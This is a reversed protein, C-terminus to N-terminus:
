QPFAPDRCSRRGAAPRRAHGCAPDVALPRRGRPSRQAGPHQAGRVRRALGSATVAPTGGGVPIPNPVPVSAPSPAPVVAGSASTCGLGAAASTAAAGPIPGPACRLRRSREPRRASGGAGGTATARTPAPPAAPAVLERVPEPPVAAVVAAPLDVIAAIGVVESGQLRVNIGNRAALAAAVFHGLHKSLAITPPEAGVLRQNARAIEAANMGLGHDIM